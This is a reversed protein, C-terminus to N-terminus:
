FFPALQQFQEADREPLLRVWSSNAHRTGALERLHPPFQLVFDAPAIAAADAAARAAIQALEFHAADTEAPEGEFAFDGADHLGAPLARSARFTDPLFPLPLISHDSIGDCIQQRPDAVGSPGLVRADIQGARFQLDLNGADQLIFAIERIVFHDL